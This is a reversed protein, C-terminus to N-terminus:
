MMSILIGENHKYLSKLAECSETSQCNGLTLVFIYASSNARSEEVCTQISEHGHENGGPSDVITFKWGKPVKIEFPERLTLSYKKPM